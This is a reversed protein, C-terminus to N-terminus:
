RGELTAHEASAVIDTFLVTALVRDPTVPERVGTLFERIEAVIDDGDTWPAHDSGPLKLTNPTAFIAALFRANEVHCVIGRCVRRVLRCAVRAASTHKSSTDARISVARIARPSWGACLSAPVRLQATYYPCWAGRNFLVVGFEDAFWGPVQIAQAGPINLTLQPFTDGV